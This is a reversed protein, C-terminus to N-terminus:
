VWGLAFGSGFALENRGSHRADIRRAADQLVELHLWLAVDRNGAAADLTGIAM